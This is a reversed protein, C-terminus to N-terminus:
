LKGASPCEMNIICKACQPNRAKCTYRGLLILWHHAYRKYKEPIIKELDKEVKDATNSQSLGLRHSVRFVHTDVAITNHNFLTNLVVSATKQGVGSLAQLDKRNNPVKTNHLKILDESISILHKSKNRYLGISSIYNQVNDVGLDLMEVPTKAVKFLKDTVKNVGKDTTQASLVVAILLTFDNIYNLETSPNPDSQSLIQFIRNVASISTNSKINTQLM